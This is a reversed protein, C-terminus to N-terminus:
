PRCHSRGACHGSLNNMRILDLSTLRAGPPETRPDKNDALFREHDLWFSALPLLPSYDNARKIVKYKWCHWAEILM